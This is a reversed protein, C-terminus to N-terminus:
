KKTEEKSLLVRENADDHRRPVRRLVVIVLKIYKELYKKGSLLHSIRLSFIWIPNQGLSRFVIWIRCGIKISARETTTTTTSKTAITTTKTMHSSMKILTKDKLCKYKQQHKKVNKKRNIIILLFAHEFYSVFLIYIHVCYVRM